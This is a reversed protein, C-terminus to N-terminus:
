YEEDWYQEPASGKEAIIVPATPEGELPAINELTVTFIWEDGYDYLYMFHQGEHLGASGIQINAANAGSDDNPSAICNPSWKEGDMFFSYLHEDDFNFAQIIAKHLDQMTHESSITIKRWVKVHWMVHFTYLGPTYTGSDRPLTQSLDRKPFLGDFAHHFAEPKKKNVTRKESPMDPLASGPVPNVEGYEVRLPINWVTIDRSELLIRLMNEGFPTLSISKAYFDNKKGYKDIQEQDKECVWFGFWEIHLFFHNWCRTLNALMTKSGFDIQKDDLLQKCVTAFMHHIQNRHEGLMKAWNADVWFTELLVFYKETFTLKQFQMWRNTGQLKLQNATIPAKELIRSALALHYLFHIYPYQEQQPRNTKNKAKISLLSNLDPLQKSPIYAKTKTLEMPHKLIYNIYQEFDNVLDSPFTRRKEKKASFITAGAPESQNADDTDDLFFDLTLQEHNDKM